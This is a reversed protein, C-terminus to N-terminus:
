FESNFDRFGHDPEVKKTDKLKMDEDPSHRFNENQNRNWKSNCYTKFDNVAWSVHNPKWCRIPVLGTIPLNTEELVERQILPYGHKKLADSNRFLSIKFLAVVTCFLCIKFRAFIKFQVKEVKIKLYSWLIKSLWLFISHTLGGRVWRMVGMWLDIATARLATALWLLRRM